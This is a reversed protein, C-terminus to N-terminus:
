KVKNNEIVGKLTVLSNDIEADIWKIIEEQSTVKSLIPYDDFIKKIVASRKLSGSKNWDEFGLEADTIMTLMVEKIQEKAINIKEADSKSLYNKIKTTLSIALGCIVLIMTWNENVFELLNKIGHLVNM